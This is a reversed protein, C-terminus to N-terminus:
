DCVSVVNAFWWELFADRVILIKRNGAKLFCKAPIAEHEPIAKNARLNQITRWRIAKGTLNDLETASFIPPIERKLQDLLEEM